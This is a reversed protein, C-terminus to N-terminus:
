IEMLDPNREENRLFGDPLAKADKWPDYGQIPELWIKAIKM